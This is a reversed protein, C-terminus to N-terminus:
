VPVIVNITNFLESSTIPVAPSICCAEKTFSPHNLQNLSQIIGKYADDKYSWTNTYSFQLASTADKALGSYTYASRISAAPSPSIFYAAFCFHAADLTLRFRSAATSLITLNNVVYLNNISYNYANGNTVSCGSACSSAHSKSHTTTCSSSNTNSHSCTHGVTQNLTASTNITKSESFVFPTSPTFNLYHSNSCTSSSAFSSSNAESCGDTKTTTNTSSGTKCNSSTYNQAIINYISLTNYLNYIKNLYDDVCAENEAEALLLITLTEGAMLSLLTNSFPNEYKKDPVVSTISVYNSSSPNFLRNLLMSAEKSTLRQFTTGKFTSRLADELIHLMVEAYQCHKICVYVTTSSSTIEFVYGLTCNLRGLANLAYVYFSAISSAPLNEIKLILIQSTCTDPMKCPLCRLKGLYPRYILDVFENLANDLISEDRPDFM